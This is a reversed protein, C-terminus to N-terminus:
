TLTMVQYEGDVGGDGGDDIVLCGIKHLLRGGIIRGRIRGGPFKVM